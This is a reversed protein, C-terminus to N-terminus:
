KRKIVCDKWDFRKHFSKSNNAVFTNIASLKSKRKIIHFMAVSELKLFNDVAFKTLAINSGKFDTRVSPYVIGHLGNSIILESFAASIKYDHHSKINEKAFENAFYELLYEIKYYERPNDQRIKQLYFNYSDNISANSKGVKESFVIDAVEFTELIRWKGITMIFNSSDVSKNRLLESIEFLNTIAADPIEITSIAGYFMSQGLNNARGYTKINEIDNRYSIESKNKFIQDPENIRAREIFDDKKLRSITRPLFRIDTSITKIIGEYPIKSLNLNKLVLLKFRIKDYELNNM